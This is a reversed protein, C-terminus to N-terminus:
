TQTKEIIGDLENNLVGLESQSFLIASSKDDMSDIVFGFSPYSIHEVESVVEDLDSEFDVDDEVVDNEAFDDVPSKEIESLPKGCFKCFRGEPTDIGCSPCNVLNDSM